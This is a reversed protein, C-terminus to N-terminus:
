GPLKGENKLREEIEKFLSLFAKSTKHNPYLEFVPERNAVAEKVRVSEPIITEFLLDKYKEELEEKIKRYFIVREKVISRIIGLPKIEKKTSEKIKEISDILDSLGNISFKSIDVPIIVFDSGLFANTTFLGLSPPTDIIAFDYKREESELFDKLRFFNTLKVDAEYKSLTIDSGILYLNEKIQMPKPKEGEFILKIHSTDPVEDEMLSTTFNGQPDMDISLVKHKKRLFNVLHFAITTKGVGGKQNALVIKIM